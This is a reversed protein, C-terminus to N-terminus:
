TKTDYLNWNKYNPNNEYSTECEFNFVDLEISSLTKLSKKGM